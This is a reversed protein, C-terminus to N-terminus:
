FIVGTGLGIFGALPELRLVELTSASEPSDPVLRTYTFRSGLSAVVYDLAGEVTVVLRPGVVWGATGRLGAGPVVRHRKDSESLDGSRASQYLVLVEPGLHLFHDANGAGLGLWVRAPYSSLRATALVGDGRNPDAFTDEDDDFPVLLGMGLAIHRSLFSRVELLVAATDPQFSFAAGTLLGMRIPDDPEDAGHLPPGTGSAHARAPSGPLAPARSIPTHDARTAVGSSPPGQLCPKPALSAPAVANAMALLGVSLTM